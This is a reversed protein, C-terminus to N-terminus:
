FKAVCSLRLSTVKLDPFHKAVAAARFCVDEGAAGAWLESVASDLVLVGKIVVSIISGTIAAAELAYSGRAGWQTIIQYLLFILYALEPLNQFMFVWVLPKLEKLVAIVGVASTLCAWFIGFGLIISHSFSINYVGSTLVLICLCIQAQLDFTVMSFCVNLLFYQEQLSELAGGVHFAMMNPSWILLTSCIVHFLGICVICVFRVLILSDKESAPLVAFNVISRIM